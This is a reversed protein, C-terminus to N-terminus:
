DSTKIFPRSRNRGVRIKGHSLKRMWFESMGAIEKNDEKSGKPKRIYEILGHSNLFRYISSPKLSTGREVLGSSRMETILARVSTITRNKLLKILNETTIRDITRSTGKDFRQRPLLSEMTRGSNKYLRIWNLITSQSIYTRDSYPIIWTRSSKYKLLEEKEGRLMKNQNLFDSIIGYRFLAIQQSFKQVM